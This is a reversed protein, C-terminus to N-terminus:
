AASKRRREQYERSRKLSAPLCEDHYRRPRGCRKGKIRQPQPVALGCAKCTAVIEGSASLMLETAVKPAEFTGETVAREANSMAAYDSQSVVDLPRPDFVLRARAAAGEKSHGHVLGLFVVPESRHGAADRPPRHYVRWTAGQSFPSM